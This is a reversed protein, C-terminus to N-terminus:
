SRVERHRAILAMVLGIVGVILLLTLFISAPRTISSPHQQFAAIVDVYAALNMGLYFGWSAALYILDHGLLTAIGGMALAFVFIGASLVAAWDFGSVFGLAGSLAVIIALIASIRRMLLCTDGAADRAGEEM